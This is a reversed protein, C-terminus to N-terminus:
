TRRRCRRSRRRAMEVGAAVGTMFRRSEPLIPNGDINGEELNKIIGEVIGGLREDVAKRNVLV